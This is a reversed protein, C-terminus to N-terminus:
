KRRDTNGGGVRPWGETKPPPLSDAHGSSATPSIAARCIVDVLVPSSWCGSVIRWRRSLTAGRAVNLGAILAEEGIQRAYRGVNGAKPLGIGGGDAAGTNM